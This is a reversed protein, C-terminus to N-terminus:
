KIESIHLVDEKFIIQFQKRDHEFDLIFDSSYAKDNTPFWDKKNKDITIILGNPEGIACFQDLNGDFIELNCKQNLLKFIDKISHTALGIESIGVVSKASFLDAKPKSFDDRAIFELINKDEDYFYLSKASWNSFDVIKDAGNKLIKTRDEVWNAAEKEQRDPIHFAIHYPTIQEAQEFRLLSYGINLEFSKETQTQISFGFRENYFKLQKQLQNTYVTLKHIKM